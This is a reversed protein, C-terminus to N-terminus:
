YLHCPLVGKVKEDFKILPILQKLQEKDRSVLETNQLYRFINQTGIIVISSEATQTQLSNFRFLISLM